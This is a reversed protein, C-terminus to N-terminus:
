KCKKKNQKVESRFARHNKLGYRQNPFEPTSASETCAETEATEGIGVCAYILAPSSTGPSFSTFSERSLGTM